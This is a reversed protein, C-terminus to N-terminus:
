CIRACVAMKHCFAEVFTDDIREELWLQTIQARSRLELLAAYGVASWLEARNQETRDQWVSVLLM